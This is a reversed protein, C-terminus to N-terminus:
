RSDEAVDCSLGDCCVRGSAFRGVPDVATFHVGSRPMCALAPDGLRVQGFGQELLARRATDPHPTCAALLAVMFIIRMVPGSVARAGAQNKRARGM